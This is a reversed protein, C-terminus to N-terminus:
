RGRAPEVVHTSTTVVRLDSVVKTLEDLKNLIESQRKEADVYRTEIISLRTALASADKLQDIAGKYYGALMGGGAVMLAGIIQLVAPHVRIRGDDEPDALHSM